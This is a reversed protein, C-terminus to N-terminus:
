PDTNMLAKIWRPSNKCTRHMLQLCGAMCDTANPRLIRIVVLLLLDDSNKVSRCRAPSINSVTENDLGALSAVMKPPPTTIVEPVFATPCGGAAIRISGRAARFLIQEIPAVRSYPAAKAKRARDKLQRCRYRAAAARPKGLLSSTASWSHWFAPPV